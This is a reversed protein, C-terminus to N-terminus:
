SVQYSKKLNMILRMRTIQESDYETWTVERSVALNKLEGLSMPKWDPMDSAYSIVPKDKKAPKDTKAKPESKPKPEVTKKAPHVKTETKAKPEPEKMERITPAEINAGEVKQKCQLRVDCRKCEPTSEDHAIGFCSSEQLVALLQKDINLM